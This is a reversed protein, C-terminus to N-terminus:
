RRVSHLRKDVSERQVHYTDAPFRAEMDDRHATADKQLVFKREYVVVLTDRNTGIVWYNVLAM